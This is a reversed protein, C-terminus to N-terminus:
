TGKCFWKFQATDQINVGREKGENSDEGEEEMVETSPESAENELVEEM